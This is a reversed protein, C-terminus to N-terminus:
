NKNILLLITSRIFDRSIRCGFDNMSYLRSTNVVKSPISQYFISPRPCYAPLFDSITLTLRSVLTESTTFSSLFFSGTGWSTFRLGDIRFKPDAFVFPELNDMIPLWIGICCLCIVVWRIPSSKTRPYLHRHYVLIRGKGRWCSTFPCWPVKTKWFTTALRTGRATIVQCCFSERALKRLNSVPQLRKLQRHGTVSLRPSLRWWSTWGRM